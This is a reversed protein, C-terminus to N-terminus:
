KLINQGLHSIAQQYGLIYGTVGVLCVVFIIGLFLAKQRNQHSSNLYLSQHVPTEKETSSDLHTDM